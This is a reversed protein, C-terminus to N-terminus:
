ELPSEAIPVSRMGNSGVTEIQQQIMDEQPEQTDSTRSSTEGADGTSQPTAVRDSAHESADDAGGDQLVRWVAQPVHAKQHMPLSELHAVFSEKLDPLIEFADQLKPAPLQLLIQYSQPKTRQCCRIFGNWVQPYKWM